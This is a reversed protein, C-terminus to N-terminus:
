PKYNPNVKLVGNEFIFQQSSPVATPAPTGGQTGPVAPMGTIPVTSVGGTRQNMVIGFRGFPDLKLDYKEATTKDAMAQEYKMRSEQALAAQYEKVLPLAMDTLGRKQLEKIMAPYIQKPDNMDIDMGRVADAAQQVQTARQLGPDQIGLLGQVGRGMLQGQQAAQAYLPALSPSMMTGPNAAMKGLAIQEAEDQAQRNQMFLEPTIGFMGMPNNKEAMM